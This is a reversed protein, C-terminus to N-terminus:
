GQMYGFSLFVEVLDGSVCSKEAFGIIRNNVGTAPAAAVAQGSADTTVPQGRTITGGAKVWVIGEKVIDLRDGAATCGYESVGVLLDTAASALAVSGDAAGAKVISRATIAADATYSYSDDPRAM